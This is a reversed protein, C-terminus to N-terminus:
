TRCNPQQCHWTPLPHSLHPAVRWLPRRGSGALGAICHVCRCVTNLFGQCFRLTASALSCFRESRVWHVFCLMTVCVDAYRLRMSSGTLLDVFFSVEHSCTDWCRRWTWASCHTFFVCRVTRGFESHAATLDEVLPCHLLGLVAVANRQIHLDSV